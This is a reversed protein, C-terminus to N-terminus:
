KAGAQNGHKNTILSVTYVMGTALVIRGSNKLVNLLFERRDLEKTASTPTKDTQLPPKVMGRKAHNSKQFNAFHAGKNLGNIQLLNHVSLVKKSTKHKSM